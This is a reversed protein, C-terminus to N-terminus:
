QQAAWPGVGSVRDVTIHTIFGPPLGDMPPFRADSGLYSATSPFTAQWSRMATSVSGALDSIAIPGHGKARRCPVEAV